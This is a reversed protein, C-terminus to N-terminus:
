ENRKLIMLSCVEAETMQVKQKDSRELSPSQQGHKKADDSDYKRKQSM